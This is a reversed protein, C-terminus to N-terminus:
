GLAISSSIFIGLEGAPIAVPLTIALAVISPLVWVVSELWVRRPRTVLVRGDFSVTGTTPDTIGAIVNFSTTKGTGNPGIISVIAQRPIALNVDRVAMLGGFRRSVGRAELLWGDGPM